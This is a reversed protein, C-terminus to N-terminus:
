TLIGDCSAPVHAEVVSSTLTSRSPLLQPADDGFAAGEGGGGAAAGKGSAVPVLLSSGGLDIAGITVAASLRTLVGAEKAEVEGIDSVYARGAAFVNFGRLDFGSM